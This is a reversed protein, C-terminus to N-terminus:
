GKIGAFLITGGAGDTVGQFAGICGMRTAAFVALEMAGALDVTLDQEVFPAEEGAPKTLLWAFRGSPPQFTALTEVRLARGDDFRLAGANLSWTGDAVRWNARVPGIRADWDRLARLYAPDETPAPPGSPMDLAEPTFGEAEEDFQFSLAVEGDADRVVGLAGSTFALEPKLSGRLASMASEIGAAGADFTAVTPPGGGGPVKGAEMETLRLRGGRMEFRVVYRRLGIPGSAVRVAEVIGARGVLKQLRDWVAEAKEGGAYREFWGM